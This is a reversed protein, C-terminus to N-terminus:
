AHGAEGGLGRKPAPGFLLVAFLLLGASVIFLGRRTAAREKYQPSNADQPLAVKAAIRLFADDPQAPRPHPPLIVQGPPPADPLNSPLVQEGAPLLNLSWMALRKVFAPDDILAQATREQADRLDEMDAAQAAALDRQYVDNKWAAYEPLLVLAAVIAMAPLALLLFGAQKVIARFWRPFFPLRPSREGGRASAGAAKTGGARSPDPDNGPAPGM